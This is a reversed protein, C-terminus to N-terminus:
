RETDIIMAEARDGQRHTKGQGDGRNADMCVLGEAQFGVLTGGLGAMMCGPM